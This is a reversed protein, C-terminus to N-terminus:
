AGGGSGRARETGKLAADCLRAIVMGGNAAAVDSDPAFETITLGVVDNTAALREVLSVADAVSPGGPERFALHPFEDPDLVDLDFHIHLKRGSVRAEDLLALGHQRQFELDGEDGVRVGYYFFRDASIPAPLLERMPGPAYGMIASVPMGHLSGSPSTEPTNADYHADIWVVTLGPHRQALYGIVAIDVACDGGATLVREPAHRRLLEHAARFQEFLAPWAIVDFDDGTADSLPVDVRPAYRACIEAAAAAGRPLHRHRGSGQWQGYALMLDFRTARGARGETSHM